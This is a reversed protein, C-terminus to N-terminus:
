LKIDMIRFMWWSCLMLLILCVTLLVFGMGQYLPEMYDGAMFGIVGVFAFPMGMMIRSEFKKQSILVSVELEVELKEGILQSTRRVVEVLDGGARKCIAIVDAFNRVEELNSRRAFDQLCVELQEGNLLRNSIARLEMMLDSQTDGILLSLDNELSMFANEVSRGASLLSSLAQLAEKFQLRLKDLRKRCLAKAYYRPYLLGLPAAILAIVAQRYMLWIAIYCFSCGLVIAWLREYKSLHYVRYETM